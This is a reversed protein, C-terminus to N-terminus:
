KNSLYTTARSLTAQKASVNANPIKMKYRTAVPSSSNTREAAAVMVSTAVEAVASTADLAPAFMLVSTSALM